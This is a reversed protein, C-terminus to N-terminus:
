VCNVELHFTLKIMPDISKTLLRRKTVALVIYTHTHTHTYRKEYIFIYNNLLDIM